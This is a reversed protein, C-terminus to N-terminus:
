YYLVENDSLTVKWFHNFTPNKKHNLAEVNKIDQMFMADVILKKLASKSNYVLDIHNDPIQEKEEIQILVKELESIRM